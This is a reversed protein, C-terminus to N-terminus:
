SGTEVLEKMRRMTEDFARNIVSEDDASDHEAHIHVTVASAGETEAVQLWGRYGGEGEGGWELRRAAPDAHLHADGEEHRGQVEAAVHVTEGGGPVATTMMAVYKPMNAPDALCRFAQDAPAAVEVTREYDAM